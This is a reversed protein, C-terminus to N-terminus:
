DWKLNNQINYETVDYLSIEKGCYESQFLSIYAYFDDFDWTCIFVYQYGENYAWEYTSQIIEDTAYESLYCEFYAIPNEQCDIFTDSESIDGGLPKYLWVGNEYLGMSEKYTDTFPSIVLGNNKWEITYLVGYRAAILPSNYFVQLEPINDKDYDTLSFNQYPEVSDKECQMKFEEPYEGGWVDWLLSDYTIQEGQWDATVNGRLFERYIELLEDVTMLTKDIPMYNDPSSSVISCPYYDTGKECVNWVIGPKCSDIHYVAILGNSTFIYVRAGSAALAVSDYVGNQYNTFDNVYIKYQGALTNSISLVECRSDSGDAVLHNNYSDIPQRISIYDMDGYNSKEPTYMVLDLDIDSDWCLVVKEMDGTIAYVTYGKVTCADETVYFNEYTSAFGELSYEATYAGPMLTTEFVGTEGTSGSAVSEGDRANIGSRIVVQANQLSAANADGTLELSNYLYLKVDAQVQETGSLYICSAPNGLLGANLYINHIYVPLYGELYVQLYCDTDDLSVYIHWFGDETTNGSYLVSNSTSDIVAISVDALPLGEPSYVYGEMEYINKQNQVANYINYAENLVQYEVADYTARDEDSLAFYSTNPYWTNSPNLTQQVIQRPVNIVRYRVMVDDSFYYRCGTKEITAYTPTYVDVTRTFVFNIKGNDYYYDSVLYHGDQDEVTVIKNIQESDPHRYVFCQIVNGSQANIFNCISMHYNSIQNDEDSDAYVDELTYFLTSDWDMGEQKQGPTYDRLSLDLVNLGSYNYQATEYKVLQAIYDPEDTTESIGTESSDNSDKEEATETLGTNNAQRSSGDKGMLLVAIVIGIVAVAAAVSAIVAVSFRSSPKEKAKSVEEAKGIPAGCKPCFNGHPPTIRYRM